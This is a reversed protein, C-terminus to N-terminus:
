GAGSAKRRVRPKRPGRVTNRGNEIHKEMGNGNEKGTTDPVVDIVAGGENEWNEGNLPKETEKEEAELKEHNFFTKDSQKIKYKAVKDLVEQKKKAAEDLTWANVWTLDKTIEEPTLPRERVEDYIRVPYYAPPPPGPEMEEPAINDLVLNRVKTAKLQLNWSESFAPPGNFDGERIQINEFVGRDPLGKDKEGWERGISHFLGRLLNPTFGTAHFNKAYDQEGWVVWFDTPSVTDELFRKAVHRMNPVVIRIEGGVKLVRTQWSFHELTHSSFVIDFTEDPIPLYRVDCVVDPHVDERIDFSVVIGEDLMYPSIGGSGIDAILKTGPEKIAWKPNAQPSSSPMQYMVNNNKDYHHAQISTDAWVKYGAKKAKWYFYLDETNNHPTQKVGPFSGYETSYWPGGIKESITRYVDTKVLTLGNGAADIEILDGVHWNLYPMDLHGRFLLPMPPNSKSWYVGNIIDKQHRWMKLFSDAPAIVDDDLWYIYDAGMDLAYQVIENRADAIPKGVVYYDMSSSVLPFQQSGRAQAFYHSVMGFSPIGVVVAVGHKGL